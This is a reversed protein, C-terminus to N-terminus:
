LPACSTKTPKRRGTPRSSRWVNEFAEHLIALEHPQFAGHPPNVSGM